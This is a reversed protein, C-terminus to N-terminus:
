FLPTAATANAVQLAGAVEVVSGALWGVALVRWILGWSRGRRERLQRVWQGVVVLAVALGLTLVTLGIAHALDPLGGGWALRSRRAVDLVYSAGVVLVILDWLRVQFRDGSQHSGQDMPYGKSDPAPM